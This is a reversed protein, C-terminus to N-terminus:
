KSQSYVQVQKNPYAEAAKNQISHVV